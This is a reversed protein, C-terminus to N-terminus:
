VFCLTFLARLLINFSVHLSINFSARLSINFSAHLSCLMFHVFCSTFSARLSIVRVFCRKSGPTTSWIDLSRSNPRYIQRGMLFNERCNCIVCIQGIGGCLHFFQLTYFTKWVRMCVNRITCARACVCESVCARDVCVCVGVCVYVCVCLLITRNPEVDLGSGCHWSFYVKREMIQLCGCLGCQSHFWM